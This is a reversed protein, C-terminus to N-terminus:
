KELNKARSAMISWKSSRTGQRNEYNKGENVRRTKPM